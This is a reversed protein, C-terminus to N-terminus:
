WLTLKFSHLALFPYRSAYVQPWGIIAKFNKVQFFKGRKIDHFLVIWGKDCKKLKLLKSNFKTRDM